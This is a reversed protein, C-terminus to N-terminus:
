RAKHSRDLNTPRNVREQQQDSALSPHEEMENNGQYYGFSNMFAINIGSFVM